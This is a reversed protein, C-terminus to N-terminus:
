GFKYSVGKLHEKVNKLVHFYCMLIKINPGLSLNAANFSAGCADMMLYNITPSIDLELCFGILTQFFKTFDQEQEHSIVSLAIPFFQGMIDSIGFVVLPFRRECLKYTCDIHHPVNIIKMFMILSISTLFIFLHNLETGTRVSSNYEKAENPDVKKNKVFKRKSLYEVVPGIENSSKGAKSNRRYNQIQKLTPRCM